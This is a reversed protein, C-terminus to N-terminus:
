FLKKYTYNNNKDYKFKIGSESKTVEIYSYDDPHFRRENESYLLAYKIIIKEDKERINTPLILKYEIDRKKLEDMLYCFFDDKDNGNMAITFDYCNIYDFDRYYDAHFILPHGFCTTDSTHMTVDRSKSYGKKYNCKAMIDKLHKEFYKPSISCKVYKLLFPHKMADIFDIDTKADNKFRDYGWYCILRQENLDGTYYTSTTVNEQKYGTTVLGIQEYTVKTDTHATGTCGRQTWNNKSDFTNVDYITETKKPKGGEFITKTEKVSHGDNNYEYQLTMSGSGTITRKTIRKTKDYEFKTKDFDTTLMVPYGDADYQIKYISYGSLYPSNAKDIKGNQTFSIRGDTNEIYRVNGNAANFIAADHFNQAYCPITISLLLFHLLKKM